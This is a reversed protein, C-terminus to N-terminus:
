IQKALDKVNLLEDTQKMLATLMGLIIPLVNLGWIKTSFNALSLLECALM